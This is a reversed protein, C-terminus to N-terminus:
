LAGTAKLTGKSGAIPCQFIQNEVDYGQVVVFEEHSSGSVLCIGGQRFCGSFRVEKNDVSGDGGIFLPNVASYPTFRRFLQQTFGGAIGCGHYRDPCAGM